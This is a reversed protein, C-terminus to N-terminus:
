KVTSANRFWHRVGPLSEGPKLKKIASKILANEPSMKVMLPYAEYLAVIDTVEFEPERRTAIGEQKTAAVSAASQHVSVIAEATKQQNELALREAEAKANAETEEALRRKEAAEALAKDRAAKTKFGAARAEAEEAEKQLRAQEAAAEQRLREEEARQKEEAELRIREEEEWAKQRAEAAIRNQEAQYNALLEGIRDEELKVDVTLSAALTQIRKALDDVPGKVAKRMEEISRTFAKLEKLLDAARTASEENPIVTGKRARALLEDRRQIASASASLEVSSLGKLVLATSATDKSM